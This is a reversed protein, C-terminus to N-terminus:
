RVLRVVTLEGLNKEELTWHDLKITSEEEEM